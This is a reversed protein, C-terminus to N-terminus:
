VANSTLDLRTPEGGEGSVALALTPILTCLLTVFVHTVTRFSM